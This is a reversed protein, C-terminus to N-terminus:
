FFIGMKLITLKLHDRCSSFYKRQKGIERTIRSQQYLNEGLNKLIEPLLRLHLLIIILQFKNKM